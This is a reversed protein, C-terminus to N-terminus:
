EYKFGYKEPKCTLWLVDTSRRIVRSVKIGKYEWYFIQGDPTKHVRAVGFKMGTDFSIYDWGFLMNLLQYLMQQKGIKRKGNKVSM